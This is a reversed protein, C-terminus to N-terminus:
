RRPQGARGHPGDYEVASRGQCRGLRSPVDPQRAHLYIELAPDRLAKIAQTRAKIASTKALKFM